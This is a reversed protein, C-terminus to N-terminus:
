EVQLTFPKIKIKLDIINHIVNLEILNGDVNLIEVKKSGLGQKIKTYSNQNGFYRYKKCKSKLLTLGNKEKIRVNKLLIPYLLKFDSHLLKKVIKKDMEPVIYLTSISDQHLVLELFKMGFKSTLSIRLADNNRKTILLGSITRAKRSLSFEYIYSSDQLSPLIIPLTSQSYVAFCTSLCLCVLPFRFTKLYNMRFLKM